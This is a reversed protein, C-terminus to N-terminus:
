RGPFPVPYVAGRNSFSFWALGLNTTAFQEFFYESGGISFWFGDPPSEEDDPTVRARARGILYHFETQQNSGNFTVVDAPDTTTITLGTLAGVTSVTGKLWLSNNLTGAIAFTSSLNSIAYASGPVTGSLTEFVFSRHHVRVDLTASVNLGVPYAPRVEFPRTRRTRVLPTLDIVTNDAGHTVAGAAGPQVRLNTLRNSSVILENLTDGSVLYSLSPDVKAIM